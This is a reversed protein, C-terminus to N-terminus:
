RKACRSHSRPPQVLGTARTTIVMVQTRRHRTDLDVGARLYTLPEEDVVPHTDDDALCSLDPVVHHEVVPDGQTATGHLPDLSVGRDPRAHRDSGSGPDQTGDVDTVVGCIPAFETTTLSTGAPAIAVPIGATM